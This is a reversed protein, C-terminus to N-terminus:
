GPRFDAEDIKEPPLVRPRLRARELKRAATAAARRDPAALIAHFGPRGARVMVRGGLGAGAKGARALAAAAEARTRYDGLSVAWGDPTGGCQGSPLVVPPASAAKPAAGSTRGASLAALAVAREGASRNALAVLALRRGGREVLTAGTFGGDCTFGTKGLVAGAPSAVAANRPAHVEGRWRLPARFLPRLRAGHADDLAIILRAIDAATTVHGRDPLGTANRFRTSTMGLRAATETMRRAFAEESGAVAEAIVRAADNSSLILAAHVATSLPIEQGAVLGLRVPPAAAAHASVRVSAAWDLRGAAVADLALYITMLKTISAPFRLDDPAQSALRTQGDADLAIQGAAGPGALAAAVVLGAALRAFSARAICARATM